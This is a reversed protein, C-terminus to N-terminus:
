GHEIWASDNYCATIRTNVGSKYIYTLRVWNGVLINYDSSGTENFGFFQYEFMGCVTNGQIVNYASNTLKIGRTAGIVNNAIVSRQLVGFIAAESNAGQIENGDILNYFRVLELNNTYRIAIAGKADNVLSIHNGTVTNTDEQLDIMYNNYGGALRNNNITMRTAESYVFINKPNLYGINDSITVAWNYPGQVYIAAIDWPNTYSPFEVGTSGFDNFIITDFAGGVYPTGDIRLCQMNFGDFWNYEVKISSCNTLRLSPVGVAYSTKTFIINSVVAHTLNNLWLQTVSGASEFGLNSIKTGYNWIFSPVMKLTGGQLISNKGEGWIIIPATATVTQGNLDYTGEKFFISQPNQDFVDQILTYAVTGSYALVGNADKAFYNSGERWITYTPAGPYIGSSITFTSSPSVAFVYVFTASILSAV